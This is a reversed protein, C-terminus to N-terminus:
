FSTLILFIPQSRLSVGIRSTIKTVRGLFQDTSVFSVWPGRFYGSWRIFSYLCDEMCLMASFNTHKGASPSAEQSSSGLKTEKSASLVTCDSFM